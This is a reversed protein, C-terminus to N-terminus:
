CRLVRQEAPRYIALVAVISLALLTAPLLTAGAKLALVAADTQPVVEGGSAEQWGYAGLILSLILPGVANAAKQGFLWIASFAGEIAEGTRARTVDMLDPYIAWPIQQYSGNAAGVLLFVCFVLGLDDSPLVAFVACLVGVYFVLGAVLAMVKGLRASLWVWGAQSLISGIVFAAFMLSAMPLGTAAQSLASSGPDIVLYVAAFPVAATLVAIGLTMLGYILVLRVFAGNSLVMRVLGLFGETTGRMIRPARWTAWVSLWVAVVTVPAFIAMAVFYGQSAAVAPILAGGVLIGLSAFAMRWGTMASREVSDQTIEGAMAGYPIAVMTFGLTAVAFFGGVWILDAVAERDPAAFIGVMGLALVVAGVVMWPARRGFRTETRDSLFGVLPDTVMDFALIGTTLAGAWVVPVGLFQTLFSLVLLQKVVVFVNVGMDALGWGAKQRLSLSM